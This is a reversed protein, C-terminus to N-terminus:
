YYGCFGLSNREVSTKQPFRATGNEVECEQNINVTGYWDSQIHVEGGAPPCAVGLIHM